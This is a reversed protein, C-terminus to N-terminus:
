VMNVISASPQAHKMNVALVGEGSDNLLVEGVQHGQNSAVCLKALESLHGRMADTWGKRAMFYSHVLIFNKDEETASRYAALLAAEGSPGGDLSQIRLDSKRGLEFAVDDFLDKFQDALDRIAELQYHLCDERYLLDRFEGDKSGNVLLATSALRKLRGFFYAAKEFADQNNRFTFEESLILAM